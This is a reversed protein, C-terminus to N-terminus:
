LTGMTHHLTTRVDEVVRMMAQVIDDWGGSKNRALWLPEYRRLFADVDSRWDEGQRSRSGGGAYSQLVSMKGAFCRALQASVFLESAQASGSDLSDTSLCARLQDASDMIQRCADEDPLSEDRCEAVPLWLLRWSDWPALADGLDRMISVVHPLPTWFASNGFAHDFADGIESATNWAKCAGLVMGHRSNTLTHPHGHDGWDTTVLGTAGAVRGSLAFTHINDEALSTANAVRKWGSVGPCVITQFGEKVFVETAAYDAEREYGWHMLAIDRSVSSRVEPYAAFVDAWCVCDRGAQECQRAVTHVQDVYLRGIAERSLGQTHKGKGLDWPEDGCLNVTKGPFAELVDAWMREVLARSAPQTVDLTFGRARAPWRLASWEQTPPLEALHRYHPLTLVKGMHGFTALCPVISVFRDEAYKCLSIAEDPELGQSEDCITEDFTFRFAHEMYLHLHTVKCLALDDVLSQLTQLRPMKGRTIDHLVGRVMFDPQDMIECCRFGDSERLQVLSQIAWFCAEASAGRILVESPTVRLTYAHPHDFESEHIQCRFPVEGTLTTSLQREASRRLRGDSLGDELRLTGGCHGETYTVRRPAPLIIPKVDDMGDMSEVM